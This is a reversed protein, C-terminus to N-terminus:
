VDDISRLILDGKITLEGSADQTVTLTTTVISNTSKLTLTAVRATELDNAKVVLRLIGESVEGTIWSGYETEVEVKLPRNTSIPIDVVQEAKTVVTDTLAFDIFPLGGKIDAENVKCKTFALLCVIAIISSITINQIKRMNM